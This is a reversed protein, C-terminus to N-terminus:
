SSIRMVANACEYTCYPDILFGQFKNNRAFRPLVIIFWGGTMVMTKYTTHDGNGTLTKKQTKGCSFGENLYADGEEPRLGCSEFM